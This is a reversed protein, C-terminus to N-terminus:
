FPPGPPQPVKQCFGNLCKAQFSSNVPRPFCNPAGMSYIDPCNKDVFDKQRSAYAQGNVAIWQDLSYDQPECQIKLNCGYNAEQNILTCDDDTACSNDVPPQLDRKEEESLPQEVSRGDPHYCTGPYSTTIRANPAKLCEEWTLPGIPRQNQLALYAALSILIILAVLPVLVKM